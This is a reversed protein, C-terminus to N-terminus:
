YKINEYRDFRGYGLGVFQHNIGNKRHNTKVFRVKEIHKSMVTAEILYSFNTFNLNDNKWSIFYKKKCLFKLDKRHEWGNQDMTNVEKRGLEMLTGFQALYNKYVLAVIM